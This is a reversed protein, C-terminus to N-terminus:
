IQKCSGRIILKTNVIVKEYDKKDNEIIDIMMRASTLGLQTTNIDITTLQPSSTRSIISNDFGIISLDDPVRYGLERAGGILAIGMIDNTAFIATPPNPKKFREELISKAHEINVLDEEIDAKLPLINNVDFEINKARLFKKYIETKIEFSYAKPEFVSVIAINRHGLEYLYNLADLTGAEQDAMVYNCKIGAHYGNILILPVKKSVNEFFGNLRNEGTGDVNIIGDVGRLLLNKVAKEEEEQTQAFCLLLMYNKSSCYDEMKQVIQLFYFNFLTPLIVGISLTSKLMLGKAMLNPTFDLKKIADEVKIRTDQKVSYSNNIVRSVTATSVNAERAVDEITIKM